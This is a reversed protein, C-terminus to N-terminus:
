VVKFVRGSGIAVFLFIHDFPDPDDGVFERLKGAADEFTFFPELEAPSNYILASNYYVILYLSEFGTGLGGYREKKHAVIELLPQLMSSQDFSGGRCPFVIWDQGSPWTKKFFRGDPPWGEYRKRPFFHVSVLYKQLIAFDSLKEAPVDYGPPNHWSPESPWRRDTEAIFFFLQERFLPVDSPKVRARAKPRLWLFLINDSSNEGQDGIASLISSQIREMGKAKFMEDENLWEGLEVGIRQGSSATCIVDPFESSDQPQSWHRLTEGAFQPAVRLFAEFIAKEHERKSM